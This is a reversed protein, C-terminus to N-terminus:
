EGTCYSWCSSLATRVMRRGFPIYTLVYWSLALWQVIILFLLLLGRLPFHTTELAVILTLVMSGLFSMSAVWRNEDGMRRLQRAPGALFLTSALSTLNGITYLTAFREAGEEGGFLVGFGRGFSLLDLLMGLALCCGWCILRQKWTLSPCLSDTAVAQEADAVSLGGFSVGGLLERASWSRDNAATANGQREAGSTESVNGQSFIRGVFSSRSTDAVAERNPTTESPAEADGRNLVDRLSSTTNRLWSPLRSPPDEVAAM